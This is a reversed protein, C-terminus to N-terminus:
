IGISFTFTLALYHKYMSHLAVGCIQLLAKFSCVFLKFDAGIIITIKSELLPSDLAHMKELKHWIM